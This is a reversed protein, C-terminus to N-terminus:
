LLEKSPSVSCRVGNEPHRSGLVGPVLTPALDGAPGGNVAVAAAPIAGNASAGNRCRGRGGGM